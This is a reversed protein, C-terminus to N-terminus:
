RSRHSGTHDRLSPSDNAPLLHLSYIIETDTPSVSHSVLSCVIKREAGQRREPSFPPIKTIKAWSELLFTTIPEGRLSVLMLIFHAWNATAPVNWMVVYIVPFFFHITECSESLRPLISCSQNKGQLTHHPPFHSDPMIIPLCAPHHM